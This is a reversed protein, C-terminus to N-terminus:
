LSNIIQRPIQALVLGVKCKELYDQFIDEDASVWKGKEKKNGHISSADIKKMRVYQNTLKILRCVPVVTSEGRFDKTGELLDDTPHMLVGKESDQSFTHQFFDRVFTKYDKGMVKAAQDLRKKFYHLYQTVSQILKGDIDKCDMYDRILQLAFSCDEKSIDIARGVAWPAKCTKVFTNEPFLHDQGIVGINHATIFKTYNVANEDGSTYGSLLKEQPKQDTINNAETHHRNSELKIQEAPKLSEDLLTIRAAIKANIGLCLLSMDVRHQGIVVYFRQSERDYIVDIIQADSHSFGKKDAIFKVLNTWNVERDYSRDVWCLYSDILALQSVKTDFKHEIEKWYPLDPPVDIEGKKNFDEWQDKYKKKVEGYLHVPKRKFVAIPAQQELLLLELSTM